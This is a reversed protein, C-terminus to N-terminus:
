LPALGVSIALARDVRRMSQSNLAGLRRILRQCDVSRLQNTLVLSAAPLGGDDKPVPVNTVYVRRAETHSTIAAVITIPSARTASDNQFVVAPRSKEIEAGVAPDLAVLYVDGRRPASVGGPRQKAM